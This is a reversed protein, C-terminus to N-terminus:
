HLGALVLEECDNFGRAVVVLLRLLELSDTIIDFGSCYDVSAGLIDLIRLLIDHHGLIGRLHLVSRQWGEFHQVWDLDVDFVGVLGEIQAVVAGRQIGIWSKDGLFNLEWFFNM